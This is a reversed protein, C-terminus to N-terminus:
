SNIVSLFSKELYTGKIKKFDHRAGKEGEKTPKVMVPQKDENVKNILKFFEKWGQTPTVVNDM